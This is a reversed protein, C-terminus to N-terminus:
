EEYEQPLLSTLAWGSIASKIYPVRSSDTTHFAIGRILKTEPDPASRYSHVYKSLAKLCEKVYRAGPGYVLATNEPSPAEAWALLYERAKDSARPDHREPLILERLDPPRRGMQPTRRQVRRRTEASDRAEIALIGIVVPVPGWASLARIVDELGECFKDSAKETITCADEHGAWAALELRRMGTSRGSGSCVKCTWPNKGATGAGRGIGLCALCGCPIGMMGDQAYNRLHRPNQVLQKLAELDGSTAARRLRRFQEDAV